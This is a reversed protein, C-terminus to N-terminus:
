RVPFSGGELVVQRRKGGSDMVAYRLYFKDKETLPRSLVVRMKRPGAWLASWEISEGFSTVSYDTLTESNERMDDPFEVTIAPTLAGAEGGDYEVAYAAKGSQIAQVAIGLTAAFNVACLVSVVIVSTRKNRPLREDAGELFDVVAKRNKEANVLLFPVVSLMSVLHLTQGFNDFFRMRLAYVELLNIGALDFVCLLAFLWVYPDRGAKRAGRAQFYVIAVYFAAVHYGWFIGSAGHSSDMGRFANVLVTSVFSVASLFALANTGLVAEILLGMTVLVTLNGLLHPLLFDPTHSFSSVSIAWPLGYSLPSGTMDSYLSGLFAQPVTTVLCSVLLMATVIPFRKKLRQLTRPIIM